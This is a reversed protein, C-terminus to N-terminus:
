FHSVVLDVGKIQQGNRTTIDVTTGAEPFEDVYDGFVIEAGRTRVKGEMYRRFKEPYISSLLQADSHVLTVKTDPYIDKIEGVTEVYSTTLVLWSSRYSTCVSVM